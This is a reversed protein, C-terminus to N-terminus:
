QGVVRRHPRSPFAVMNCGRPMVRSCLSTLQDWGDPEPLSAECNGGTKFLEVCTDCRFHKIEEIIKRPDCSSREHDTVNCSETQSQDHCSFTPDRRSFGDWKLSNLLEREGEAVDSRQNGIVPEDVPVDSCMWLETIKQPVLGSVDFLVTPGRSIGLNMECPRINWERM